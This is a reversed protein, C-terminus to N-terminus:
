NKDIYDKVIDYAIKNDKQPTIGLYKYKWITKFEYIDEISEYGYDSKIINDRDLVFTATKWCPEGKLKLEDLNQKFMEYIDDISDDLEDEDIFQLDYGNIAKDNGNLYVYFNIEYSNEEIDAYLILKNWNSPLFEGLKNLICNYINEM